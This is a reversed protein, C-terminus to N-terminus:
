CCETDTTLSINRKKIICDIQKASQEHRSIDIFSNMSKM